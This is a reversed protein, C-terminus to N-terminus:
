VLSFHSSENHFLIMKDPPYPTSHYIRQGTEEPPLDGYEAFLEGAIASAVAEFQPPGALPFGRFMIAGYRNLYGELDEAHTSCWGALDVNDVAPRIVLPLSEENDPLFGTRVLETTPVAKRRVSRLGGTPSSTGQQASM